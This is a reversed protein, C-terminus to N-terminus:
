VGANAPRPLHALCYEEGDRAVRFELNEDSIETAGCKACRHLPESQAQRSQDEFRRRRESVQRRHVAARYIEPGFFLLYNAMAAVFAARYEMSAFAFRFLLFAAVGWAIWKMKMPLVFAVYIVADPYFYAFALFLSTTLMANSFAAGFFLAALTTGIMGVLFFLTLRFAGWARELGEGIWWLLLVYFVASIWDPFRWLNGIQPVFIYTVLRWVQGQWIAGPDLDILRLYSPDLKYLIFVLATLLAVYRLLGPLAIFGLRRELRDLFSMEKRGGYLFAVRGEVSCDLGNM